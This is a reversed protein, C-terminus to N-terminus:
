NFTATMRLVHFITKPNPIPREMSQLFTDIVCGCLSCNALTSLVCQEIRNGEADFSSVRTSMKCTAPTHNKAVDPHLLSIMEQSMCLFTGFQRKLRLLDEVIEERQRLTLRLHTLDNKGVPTAISFVAGDLLKNSSWRHLIQGTDRYNIANLTSHSFAPFSGPWKSRANQLHKEIRNYLGPMNRVKDHVEASGGDISIIHVTNPFRRLPTTASTILWNVPLIPTIEQLLDPRVYPEGGILAAFVYGDDRRDRFFQIVAANNMERVREQARWYCDCGVPCRDSVNFSFAWQRGTMARLAVRLATPAMHALASLTRNSNM